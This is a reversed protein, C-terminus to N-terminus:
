SSTVPSRRVSGRIPSPCTLVKGKQPEHLNVRRALDHSRARESNARMVCPACPRLSGAAHRARPACGDPRLSDHWASALERESTFAEASVEDFADADPPLGGEIDDPRRVENRDLKRELVELDPSCARLADQFTLVGTAGSVQNRGKRGLM